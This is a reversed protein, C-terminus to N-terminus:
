FDNPKLKANGIAHMSDNDIFKTRENLNDSHPVRISGYENETM